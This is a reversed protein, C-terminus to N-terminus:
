NMLEKCFFVGLFIDCFTSWDVDWLELVDWVEGDAENDMGQEDDNADCGCDDWFLVRSISIFGASVHM